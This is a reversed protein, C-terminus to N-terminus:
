HNKVRDLTHRINAMQDRSLTTRKPRIMNGRARTITADGRSLPTGVIMTDMRNIDTPTIRGEEQVPGTAAMAKFVAMSSKVVHSLNFDIRKKRSCEGVLEKILEGMPNNKLYEMYENWSRDSSAILINLQEIHKVAMSTDRLINDISVQVGSRVVVAEDEQPMRAELTGPMIPDIKRERMMQLIKNIMSTLHMHPRSLRRAADLVVDGQQLIVRELYNDVILIHSDSIDMKLETLACVYFANFSDVIDSARLQARRKELEDCWKSSLKSVLETIGTNMQLSETMALILGCLLNSLEVRYILRMALRNLSRAMGYGSETNGIQIICRLVSSIIAKVTDPSANLPELGHETEVGGMLIFLMQTCADMTGSVDRGANFEEIVLDLQAASARFVLDARRDVLHRQEPQNLVYTVQFMADQAVDALSSSINNISRQIQDSTDISSISSSSNTRKMQFTNNSWGNVPQPPTIVQTGDLRGMASSFVDDRLAYRSSTKPPMTDQRITFTDSQVEEPEPERTRSRSAPRRVVSGQQQPVLIKPGGTPPSTVVGSGPKVGTRKIREEVLSKDKDAMRGAAKWMQDGEFKFCAVLVNIAANRVNVDKDGVFPAVTKEVSLSKLPSIGANTIYYEIVLLCESRQRANKSKLADLLMPTMKLPGVVDSLVNVIDRVSTRMNDKAEGTKLLLYPVFASVEEQSMPTETDRILEVIVKCLELVKILAAPNTEFFRM